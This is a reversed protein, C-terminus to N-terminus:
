LCGWCLNAPQLGLKQISELLSGCSPDAEWCVECVCGIMAESSWLMNEYLAERCCAALEIVMLWAFSLVKFWVSPGLM